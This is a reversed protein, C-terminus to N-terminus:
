DMWSIIKSLSQEVPPGHYLIIVHTHKPDIIEICADLDDQVSVLAGLMPDWPLRDLPPRYSDDYVCLDTFLM